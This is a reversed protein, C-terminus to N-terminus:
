GRVKTTLREFLVAAENREGRKLDGVYRSVADPPGMKLQEALWRNSVSCHSKMWAALAIKWPASKSDADADTLSEEDV